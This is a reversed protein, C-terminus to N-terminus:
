PCPFLIDLARMAAAADARDSTVAAVQAKLVDAQMPDRERAARDLFPGLTAIFALRAARVEDSTCRLEAFRQRLILAVGRILARDIQAFAQDRLATNTATATENDLNRWCRVALNGDYVRDHTEVGLARVYRALGIPSPRPTGGTYYAWCSDCDQPSQTCSMVESLVSAYFFWILAAEIRAAQVRPESGAAGKQFADNLIPLLKAPGVCRDPYQEPIGAVSCAEGGPPAPYHVDARRQVRSDIGQDVAYLIRADIFDNASPRRDGAWLRAGIEEFAMTRAVSGISPNIPHFTNDDSICAPWSDDRSLNVRPRYDSALPLCSSVDEAFM